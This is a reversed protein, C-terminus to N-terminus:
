CSARSKQSERRGEEQSSSGEGSEKAGERNKAEVKEELLKKKKEGRWQIMNLCQASTLIRAGFVRKSASSEKTKPTISPIYQVLYKSIYKLEGTLQGGDSTPSQNTSSPTGSSTSSPTTTVSGPTLVHPCTSQPTSNCLNPTPTKLNATVMVPSSVSTAFVGPHRTPAASGAGKTYCINWSTKSCVGAWYAKTADQDSWSSSEKTDHSTWLYEIHKATWESSHSNGSTRTHCGNWM